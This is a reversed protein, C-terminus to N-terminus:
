NKKVIILKKEIYTISLPENASRYVGFNDIVCNLQFNKKWKPKGHLFRFVLRSGSINGQLADTISRKVGFTVMEYEEVKHVIDPVNKYFPQHFAM